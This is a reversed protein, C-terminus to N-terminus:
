CLEETLGTVCLKEYMKSGTNSLAAIFFLYNTDFEGKFRVGRLTQDIKGKGFYVYSTSM